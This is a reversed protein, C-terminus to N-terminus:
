HHHKHGAPTDPGPNQYGRLEAYRQMQGPALLAATALHYKLHSERLKGQTAAIAAISTKLSESTVARSSFLDELAREQDVLKSGLPVTEQKMADFLRRVEVRQDATLDLRDGLELVHSPGPYGNLEAALALGMGRGARLDDVQQQSLTKISRGELGAYPQSSQASAANSTLLLFTPLLLLCKM